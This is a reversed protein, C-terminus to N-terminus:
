QKLRFEDCSELVYDSVRNNPGCYPSHEPFLNDWDSVCQACTQTWGLSGKRGLFDRTHMDAAIFTDPEAFRGFIRAFPAPYTVRFEWVEPPPPELDLVQGAGAMAM